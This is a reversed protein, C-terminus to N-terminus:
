TTWSTLLRSFPVLLGNQRTSLVIPYTTVDLKNLLAILCLNIDASTGSHTVMFRNRVDQSALLRDSGDWKLNQQIYEYAAQILEKKGLGKGKTEKAFDNLFASQKITGGFRSIDLLNEAVKKWTTSYALYYNGSGISEIQFEFKTIYNSYTNMFPEEHFAPMNNARWQRPSITEVHQFGFFTKGYKVYDAPELILENVVVPIREQFRWEFPLGVFSYTIDIVSGVKVSPAFVKYLEVGDFIEETHISKSDAKESVIQGNELNHTVVKFDGKTPTRFSWNGWDLGAKTLIKVRMKRTFTVRTGEFFGLDLLLVASAATDAPYASMKLEDITVKDFSIKKQCVATTATLFFCAVAILLLQKM